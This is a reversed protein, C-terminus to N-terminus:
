NQSVFIVVSEQEQFDADPLRELYIHRFNSDDFQNYTTLSSLDDEGDSFLGAAIADLIAKSYNDLDLKQKGHTEPHFKMGITIACFSNPDLHKPKSSNIHMAIKRKWDQLRKRGGKTTPSVNAIMGYIIDQIFLSSNSFRLVHFKTDNLEIEKFELEENM